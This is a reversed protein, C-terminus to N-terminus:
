RETRTKRNKNKQANASNKNKQEQGKTRQRGNKDKREKSDREQEETGTRGNKEKQGKAQGNTNEAVESLVVVRRNSVWIDDKQSKKEKIIEFLKM